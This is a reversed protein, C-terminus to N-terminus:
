QIESPPGDADDRDGDEWYLAVEVTRTTDGVCNAYPHGVDFIADEAPVCWGILRLEWVAGGPADERLRKKAPAVGTTQYQFSLNRYAAFAINAADELAGLNPEYWFATARLRDVDADLAQNTGGSDPNALCTAVDGQGVERTCWRARWPSDMGSNTFLRMRMRGAGWIPNLEDGESATGLQANCNPDLAGTCEGVAGDGMLLMTAYLMGPSDAFASGFLTGLHDKLNLLAGAVTPAAASTAGFPAAGQYLNNFMPLASTERGPAMLDVIARGHAEDAGGRSTVEGVQGAQLDAVGSTNLFGAALAGAAAGPTSINCDDVWHYNNGASKVVASGLLFAQDVAVVADDDVDCYAGNTHFSLNVVDPSRDMALAMAEAFDPADDEVFELYAELASGSRRGREYPISIAPDQGDTLDAVLIGSVANGHAPGTASTETSLLERYAGLGTDYRWVKQLRSGVGAADKWAQHDEDIRDDIVVALLRDYSSQETGHQGLFGGSPADVYQEVQTSARTEVGDNSDYAIESPFQVRAARNGEWLDWVLEADAEIVFSGTLWDQSRLIGGRATVEALLGAQSALSATKYAELGLVRREMADLADVPEAGLLDEAAPPVYDAIRPLGWARVVVDRRSLGSGEALWELLDESASTEASLGSGAASELAAALSDADDGAWDSGIGVALEALERGDLPAQSLRLVQIRAVVEGGDSTGTVEWDIGYRQGAPDRLHQRSVTFSSGDGMWVTPSGESVDATVRWQDDLRVERSYIM